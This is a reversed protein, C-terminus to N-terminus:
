AAVANVRVTELTKLLEDIQGATFLGEPGHPVIDTFPSEYLRAPPMVAAEGGMADEFDTFVPRRRQKDIFQILNRLRRRVGELMALTVDQWWEDTQLDLILPMQERVM